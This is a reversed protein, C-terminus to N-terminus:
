VSSEVSTEEKKIMTQQVWPQRVYESAKYFGIVGVIDAEQNAM